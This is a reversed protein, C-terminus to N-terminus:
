WDDRRDKKKNNGINYLINHRIDNKFNESKRAKQLNSNLLKETGEYTTRAALNQREAHAFDQRATEMSAEISREADVLRESLEMRASLMDADIAEVGSLTENQLNRIRSANQELIACQNGAKALASEKLKKQTDRVKLIRQLGKVKRKM